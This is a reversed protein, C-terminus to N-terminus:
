TSRDRCIPFVYRVRTDPSNTINSSQFTLDLDVTEVMLAYGAGQYIEM